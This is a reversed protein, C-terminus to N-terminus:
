GGFDQRREGYDCRRQWGQENRVFDTKWHARRRKCFHDRGQSFNFTLLSVLPFLLRVQTIEDSTTISKTVSTLEKLIADVALQIGRRLDMPNMGAAVAKTGEAFIARTLITATTTGDGADDNTKSAVQRILQAGRNQYRDALEIAKAVTVGDKTIKPAGYAQDIIVNRGKPGLTVQVADAVKNVGELM